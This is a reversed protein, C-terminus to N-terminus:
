VHESPLTPVNRGPLPININHQQKKEDQALCSGGCGLTPSSLAKFSCESSSQNMRAHTRLRFAGRRELTRHNLHQPPSPPSTLSCYPLPFCKRKRSGSLRIAVFYGITYTMIKLCDSKLFIFFIYKKNHCELVCVSVCLWARKCLLVQDLLTFTDLSYKNQRTSQKAKKFYNQLSCITMTYWEKRHTM